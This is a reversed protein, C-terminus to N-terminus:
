GEDLLDLVTESSSLNSSFMEQGSHASLVFACFQILIKVFNSYKGDVSIAGLNNQANPELSHTVLWTGWGSSRTTSKCTLQPVQSTPSPRGSTM